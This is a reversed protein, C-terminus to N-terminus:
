RRDELLPLERLRHYPATFTSQSVRHTSPERRVLPASRREGSIPRRYRREIRGGRPNDRQMELRSNRLVDAMKQWFDSLVLPILKEYELSALLFSPYRSLIAMRLWYRVFRVLPGVAELSQRGQFYLWGAIV